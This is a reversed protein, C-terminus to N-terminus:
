QFLFIVSYALSLLTIKKWGPKQFKFINAKVQAKRSVFIILWIVTFLTIFAWIVLSGMIVGWLNYEDLYYYINGCLGQTEITFYM